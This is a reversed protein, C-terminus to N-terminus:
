KFTEHAFQSRHNEIIRVIKNVTMSLKGPINEVVFDYSNQFKQWIKGDDTMRKQIELDSLGRKKLRQLVVQDDVTIYIVLIKKILENAENEPYSRKIFGRVEGARSPDIKWILDKGFVQSLQAKQTGYLNGGYEVYELFDGQNLDEEFQKKTLFLYDLGDEEGARIPRSTTTLVKSMHPFRLLIRKIITDKGSATKGTLVILM